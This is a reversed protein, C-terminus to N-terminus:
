NGRLPLICGNGVYGGTHSRHGPKQVLVPVIQIHIYESGYKSLISM